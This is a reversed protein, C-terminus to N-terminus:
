GKRKGRMRRLRQRGASLADRLGRLPALLINEAAISLAAAPHLGALAEPLFHAALAGPAIRRGRVKNSVNGGHVIQLWGGPGPVQM